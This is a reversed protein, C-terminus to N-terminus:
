KLNALWEAVVEADEGKILAPPMGNGGNEIIELIEEKDYKAGVNKLSPGMSGELNEGHCQLCSQEYIPRAEAEIASTDANDGNGEPAADEEDGGGCAALALIAFLMYVAIKKKM